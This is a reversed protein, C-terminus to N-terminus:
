ALGPWANGNALIPPDDIVYVDPIFAPRKLSTISVPVIAFLEVVVTLKVV